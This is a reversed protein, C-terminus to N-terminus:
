DRAQQSSERQTHSNKCGTNTTGGKTYLRESYGMESGGSAGPMVAVVSDASDLLAVSSDWRDRDSRPGASRRCSPVELRDSAYRSFDKGFTRSLPHGLTTITVPCKIMM